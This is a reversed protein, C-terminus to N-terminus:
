CPPLYPVGDGAQPEGDSDSQHSYIFATALCPCGPFAVEQGRQSSRCKDANITLGYHKAHKIIETADTELDNHFIVIDDASAVINPYLAKIQRMYANQGLCYLMM